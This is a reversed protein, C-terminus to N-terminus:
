PPEQRWTVSILRCQPYIPVRSSVLCDRGIEFNAKLYAHNVYAVLKFVAFRCNWSVVGNHTSTARGGAGGCGPAVGADTLSAYDTPVHTSRNRIM